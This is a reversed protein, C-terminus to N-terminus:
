HMWAPAGRGRGARRPPRARAGAVPRPRPPAQPAAQPRLAAAAGGRHVGDGAGPPLPPASPPPLPPPIPDLPATRGEAHGRPSPQAEGWAGVDSAAWGTQREYGDVVDVAVAAPLLLLVTLGGGPVRYPSPALLAVDEGDEGGEDDEDGAVAAAAATTAARLEYLAVLALLALAIDVDLRVLLM